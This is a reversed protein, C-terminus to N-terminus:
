GKGGRSPNSRNAGSRDVFSGAKKNLELSKNLETLSAAENTLKNLTNDLNDTTKELLVDLRGVKGLQKFRETATKIQKEISKNDPNGSNKEAM